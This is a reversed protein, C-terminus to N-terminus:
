YGGEQDGGYMHKTFMDWLYLTYQNQPPIGIRKIKLIRLSKLKDCVGRQVFLSMGTLNFIEQQTPSIQIIENDPVIRELEEGEYYDILCQIFTGIKYGFQNIIDRREEDLKHHRPNQNIIKM